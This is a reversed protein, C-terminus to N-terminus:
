ACAHFYSLVEDLIDDVAVHGVGPGLNWDKPGVYTRNADPEFTFYRQVVYLIDAVTVKGDHVPDFFDYPNFPDRRGGYHENAGLEEYDTCGDGDYDKDNPNTARPTLTLSGTATTGSSCDVPPTSNQLVSVSGTNTKLSVTM